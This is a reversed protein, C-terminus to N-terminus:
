RATSPGRESMRRDYDVKVPTMDGAFKHRWERLSHVETQLEHITAALGAVRERLGSLNAERLEEDLKTLLTSFQPIQQNLLAISTEFKALASTSSDLAAVRTALQEQKTTVKGWLVGISITTGLVGILSVIVGVDVLSNM